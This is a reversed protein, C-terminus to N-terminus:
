SLRIHPRFRLSKLRSIRAKGQLLAITEMVTEYRPDLFSHFM